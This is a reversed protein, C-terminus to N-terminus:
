VFVGICVWVLAAKSYKPIGVNAYIPENEVITVVDYYLQNKFSDRQSQRITSHNPDVLVHVM